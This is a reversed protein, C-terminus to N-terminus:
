FKCGNWCAVCCFGYYATETHLGGCEPCHKLGKPNFKKNAKILAAELDRYGIVIWSTEGEIKFQLEGIEIGENVAKIIADNQKCKYTLNKM